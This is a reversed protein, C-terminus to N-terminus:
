SIKDNRKVDIDIVFSEKLEKFVEDKIVKTVYERFTNNIDFDFGRRYENHNLSNWIQDRIVGRLCSQIFDPNKEVTNAVEEKVFGKIM